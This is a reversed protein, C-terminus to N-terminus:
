NRKSLLVEQASIDNSMIFVGLGQRACAAVFVAPLEFEFQDQDMRLDVFVRAPIGAEKLKKFAHPERRNMFGAMDELTQLLRAEFLVTPEPAQRCQSLRIITFEICPPDIREVRDESTVKLANLAVSWWPEQHTVNVFQIAALASYVGM